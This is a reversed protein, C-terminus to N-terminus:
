EPVKYKYNRGLPKVINPYKEDSNQNNLGQIVKLQEWQQKHKLRMDRIPKVVFYDWSFYFTPILLLMCSFYIVSIKDKLIYKLLEKM